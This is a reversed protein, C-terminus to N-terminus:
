KKIYIYRLQESVMHTVLLMTRSDFRQPLSSLV